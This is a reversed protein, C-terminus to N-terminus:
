ATALSANKDALYRLYPEPDIPGGAVRAITEAPTFKRGHRYLRERLWEHIEEFSGSEIRDYADSSTPSSPTGLDAGLPRQRAPLDPLLRVHRGVLPRGPPLRAPREAPPRRRAGGAEREVRRPPRRDSAASCSNSSSSSACSSTSGTPRRTPTSASSRRGRATSRATSASSRSTTCSRSPTRSSRTSGAGSRSRAVSSTRGSAARRSHLASSCGTALPSRDLSAAGGHEYLGHGVEHMTSFLSNGHLDDEAYRTTLRVDRTSFSMCFPHVTPDLRFSGEDAGFARAVVLSLEHQTARAYPGSM